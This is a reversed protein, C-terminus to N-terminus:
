TQYYRDIRGCLLAAFLPTQEAREFKACSHIMIMDYKSNCTCPVEFNKPEDWVKLVKVNM